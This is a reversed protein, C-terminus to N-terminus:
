AAKKKFFSMIGAQKTSKPSAKKKEPSAQKTQSSTKAPVAAPKVTDAEVDSADTSESEWVKETVMFGDENVFQKSKLIRKHKRRKGGGGGNTTKTTKNSSKTDPQPSPPPSPEPSPPPSPSLARPEPPPTPPIVMEDESMEEESSSSSEPQQIRRRKKKKPALDEDEDSSSMDKIKKSKAGSKRADEKEKVTASAKNTKKTTEKKSSEEEKVKKDQKGNKQESPKSLEKNSDSSKVTPNKNIFAMMGGMKPKPKGSAPVNKSDKNEKGGNETKVTESTEPEKTAKKTFMQAMTAQGKAKGTKPQPVSGTSSSAKLQESEKKPQVKGTVPQKSSSSQSSSLVQLRKEEELQNIEDSDRPKAQPCKVASLSASLQINKNIDYDSMYLPNSDKLDAKQVSYVHVSSVTDLSSKVAELNGDKAVCVKCVMGDETKQRGNVLYTVHVPKKDKRSKEVFSFLMQKAQNVHVNLTHSLSKYTVVKGEDHVFEDLNELYMGDLESAAM